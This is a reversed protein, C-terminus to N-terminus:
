KGKLQGCSALHKEALEPTKVGDLGTTKCIYKTGGVDAVKVGVFGNKGDVEFEMVFGNADEKVFRKFPHLITDQQFTKKVSALGGDALPQVNLSAGGGIDVTVSKDDGMTMDMAGMGGKPVRMTLPLPTLDVDVMDGGKDAAPKAEAKTTNPKDDSANAAAEKGCGTAFLLASAVLVLVTSRLTAHM